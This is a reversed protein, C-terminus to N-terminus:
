VYHVITVLITITLSYLVYKLYERNKVNFHIKLDSISWRFLARHASPFASVLDSIADEGTALVVSTGGVASVMGRMGGIDSHLPASLVMIIIRPNTMRRM